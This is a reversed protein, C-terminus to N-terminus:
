SECARHLLLRGDSLEYTSQPEVISTPQSANYYANESPIPLVAGTSFRAVATSRSSIPLGDTLTLVFSGASLARSICSNSALQDTDVLNESLEVLSNQVFSTDPIAITGESIEGDANVDVRGDGEFPLQSDPTVIDSFLSSLVINGGNADESRAVIDSDGLAVVPLLLIINGGDKLSETTVDGDSELFLVGSSHQPNTNIFIDGGSSLKATTVIEGNRLTIRGTADIIIDGAVDDTESAASIQGRDELTLNHTRIRITGGTGSAGEQVAAVIKSPDGDTAVGSISIDSARIEVDGANGQGVTASTIVGGDRVTLRNTTLRLEGANGVGNAETVLASNRTGNGVVDVSESANITLIGSDGGLSGGGSASASIAAGGSVVLRRTNISLDGARNPSSTEAYIGSRNTRGDGDLDLLDTIVIDINGSRGFDGSVNERGSGASIQGGDRAILRDANMRISNGEGTGFTTSTILTDNNLRINRAQINLFGANGASQTISSVVADDLKLNDAEIKIDGANGVTEVDAITFFGSQFGNADRGTLTLDGDVFINLNGAQGQAGALGNLADAGRLASQIQSGNTMTMAGVNIEIAGAVGVAGAEVNGSIRAGNTMDFRGSPLTTVTINGGQRNEPSMEIPNVSSFLGSISGSASVGDVTILNDAHVKISGANGQGLTATTVFSGGNILLTDSAFVDVNGANGAGAGSINSIRSEDELTIRSARLTVDGGSGIGFLGPLSGAPSGITSFSNNPGRGSLKISDVVDILINGPEVNGSSASVIFSGNLLNVSNSNIEIDGSEPNDSIGDGELAGSSILSFDAVTVDGTANIVIDAGVRGGFVPVPMGGIEPDLFLFSTIISNTEIDVDEAYIDIGGEGFLFIGSRNELSINGRLISPGISLREIASSNDIGVSGAEAVSMLEITAGSQAQILSNQFNIDGGLLTFRQDAALALTRSANQIASVTPQSFLYASPSISLLQSPSEPSLASFVGQAAFQIGDATTGVFSGQLDLSATPGFLIGNPNIFYLNAAGLVGLRGLIDSRDRGTVRSFINEVGDPNDFYAGKQADINFQEFSHFLNGGRTAGGSIQRSPLNRITIEPSIRSREEGLTEDSVIQGSVVTTSLLTIGSGMLLMVLLSRMRKKLGHRSM